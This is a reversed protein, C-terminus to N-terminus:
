KDAHILRQDKFATKNQRASRPIQSVPYYEQLGRLLLTGRRYLYDTEKNTVPQGARFPAMVDRILVRVIVIELRWRFPDYHWEESSDVSRQLDFNTWSKGDSRYIKYLKRKIGEDDANIVHRCWPCNNHTKGALWTRLCNNGFGKGCCKTRVAFHTSRNKTAAGKQTMHEHCIACQKEDEALAAVKKQALFANTYRRFRARRNHEMDQLRGFYLDPIEMDWYEDDRLWGLLMDPNPPEHDPM